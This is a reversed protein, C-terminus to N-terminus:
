RPLESVVQVKVVRRPIPLLATTDILAMNLAGPHLGSHDDYIPPVTMDGPGANLPRARAEGTLVPPVRTTTADVALALVVGKAGAAMRLRRGSLAARIAAAAAEWGAGSATVSSVSGDGEVTIRITTRGQAPGRQDAGKQVAASVQAAASTGSPGQLAALPLELVGAPAHLARPVLPPPLRDPTATVAPAVSPAPAGEAPVAGRVDLTSGAALADGDAEVRAPPGASPSRRSTATGAPATSGALPEAQTV